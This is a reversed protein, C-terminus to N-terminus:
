AADVHGALLRRCRKKDARYATILVGNEEIVVVDRLHDLSQLERKRGAQRLTHRAEELASQTMVYGDEVAEGFALVLDLGKLSLGRQKSRQFAHLSVVVNNAQEFWRGYSM